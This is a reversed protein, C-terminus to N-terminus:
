YGRAQEDLMGLVDFMKNLLLYGCFFGFAIGIWGLPQYSAIPATEVVTNTVPSYYTNTVFMMCAGAVFFFLCGFMLFIM